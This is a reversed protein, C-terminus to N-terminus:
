AWSGFGAGSLLPTRRGDLRMCDSFYSSPVRLIKVAREQLGVSIANNPPVGARFFITVGEDSELVVSVAPSDASVRHRDVHNDTRPTLINRPLVLHKSTAQSRSRLM